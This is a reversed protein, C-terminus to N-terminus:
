STSGANLVAPRLLKMVFDGRMEKLLAVMGTRNSAPRLEQDVERRTAFQCPSGKCADLCGDLFAYIFGVAKVRSPFPHHFITRGDLWIVHWEDNLDTLVQM